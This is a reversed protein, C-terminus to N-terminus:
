EQGIRQLELQAEIADPQLQLAREFSRRAESFQENNAYAKGLNTWAEVDNQKISTWQLYTAVAKDKQGLSSYCYGLNHYADLNQPDLKTAKELWEIADRYGGNKALIAGINQYSLAFEPNLQITVHYQELADEFRGQAFYINGLNLHAIASRPSVSIASQYAAIAEDMRGQSFLVQARNYIAEFKKPAITLARDYYQIAVETQGHLMYWVGLNYVADADIPALQESKQFNKLALESQKNRLHVIGLNQYGRANNPRKQIVDEWFALESQFVRNRDYTMWAFLGSIGVVVIMLIRRLLPTLKVSNSTGRSRWFLGCAVTTTVLLLIVAALPLYMRREALPETVIPVFSSTPALIFFFWIGLYSLSRWRLWAWLTIGGLATLFIFSPLWSKIEIIKFVGYDGCMNVPWLALWIYQTIAWFQTTLYEHSKIALQFGVTRGRPNTALLAALVIWTSVLSVYLPLRQERIKSLPRNMIALDYLVVMLPAVVMVEKSAMGLGCCLVCIFQWAFKTRRTEADWARRATYLTALFFFSMLLETRQTIYSVSETQLPHLAWLVSVSFAIGWALSRWAENWSSKEFTRLIFAFLLIANLTHLAVNVLHYGFVNLGGAAYNLAFSLNVVPRGATPADQPGWLSRSLPLVSRITLNKEISHEDDYLLPGSLSNSYAAFVLVAISLPSIFISGWPLSAQKDPRCLEFRELIM